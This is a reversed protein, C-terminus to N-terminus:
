IRSLLVPDSFLLVMKKHLWTILPEKADSIKSTQILSTKSKSYLRNHKRLFRSRYLTRRVTWRTIETKEYGM